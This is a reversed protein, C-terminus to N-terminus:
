SESRRPFELGWTKAMKINEDRAMPHEYGSVCNRYQAEYEPNRRLFEQAFDMYDFPPKQRFLTQM